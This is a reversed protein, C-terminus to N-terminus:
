QRYGQALVTRLLPGAGAGNTQGFLASTANNVNTINSEVGKNTGSDNVLLTPSTGSYM